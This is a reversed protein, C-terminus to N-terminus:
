KKGLLVDRSMNYEEESLLEVHAHGTRGLSIFYDQSEVSDVPVLSDDKGSIFPNGETIPSWDGAITYYKTNPNMAAKTANAGQKLDDVAPKCVNSIEAAPSGNNPTGIMILNAVDTTNTNALFVRADLGGKSYGVLNVKTSNTAEKIAQVMEHLEKAHEGASGCRDDSEQFTVAQFIIDDQSLLGEWKEWVSADEAYGHILLVPFPKQEGTQTTNSSSQGNALLFLTDGQISITLIAAVALYVIVFATIKIKIKIKITNSREIVFVLLM